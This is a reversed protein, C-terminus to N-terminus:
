NPCRQHVGLIHGGGYAARGQAGAWEGTSSAKGSTALNNSIICSEITATRCFVGGGQAKGGSAPLDFEVTRGDRGLAENSSILCGRLTPNSDSTACLGGGYASAGHGGSQSPLGGRAKNNLIACNLILPVSNSECYIGGGYAPGSAVEYTISQRGEAENSTIMCCEITPSSGSCYIGGGDDDYVYGNKITLGSVISVLGEGSHFYLGRHPEDRSGNCDIITAAVVCPDRPNTSQVTIAKGGFDLDRNGDGTYSGPAIVVTDGAFAADIASQITPYQSPVLLIGPVHIILQVDVMQPSNEANPDSITLECDYAGGGLGDVEVIVAVQNPETTCQGSTPTVWVWDCDETIQWNLTGLGANSISFIQPTPNAGGQEAYFDLQQSSLGIAPGQVTLSVDVTKPSNTACPDSITLQCYYPGTTLGTVNVSVTVENVDGTSQGSVPTVQLWSCGETIQWNLTGLGANSISLIQPTPNSGGLGAFFTLQTPLVEIVPIL